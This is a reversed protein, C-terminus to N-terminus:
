PMEPERMPGKEMDITPVMEHKSSALPLNDPSEAARQGGTGKSTGSPSMDRDDSLSSKTRTLTWSPM